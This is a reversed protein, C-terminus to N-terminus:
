TGLVDEDEDEDEDLEDEDPDRPPMMNGIVVFCRWNFLTTSLEQSTHSTM